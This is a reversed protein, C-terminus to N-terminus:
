AGLKTKMKKLAPELLAIADQVRDAYFYAFALDNKSGFTGPHDPGLTAIRKKLVLEELAVADEQKGAEILTQSLSTLLSALDDPVAEGDKKNLRELLDVLVPQVRDLNGTKAGTIILHCMTELTQADDPDLTAKQKTLQDQFLEFARAFDARARE